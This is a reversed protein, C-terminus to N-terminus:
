PQIPHMAGTSTHMIQLFSKICNEFGSYSFPKQMCAYAGSLLLQGSFRTSTSFIIVPIKKYSENRKLLLLTSAGDMKPMNYDLVILKPYYSPHPLRNLYQLIQEGSDVIRVYKEQSLHISCLRILDQDDKDDDAFLIYNHQEPM